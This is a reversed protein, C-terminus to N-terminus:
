AKFDIPIVMVPCPASEMVARSVSGLAKIRGLGRLEEFGVVILDVNLQKALSVIEEAPLGVLGITDATIAFDKVGKVARNALGQAHEEAETLIFSASKPDDARHMQLDQYDNESMVSCVTLKAGIACALEAAARVVGIKMGDENVAALIRKM